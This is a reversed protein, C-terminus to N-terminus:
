QVVIKTIGVENKDKNFIHVFYMGKALDEASLTYHRGTFEITKLKRGTVDDVELLNQGDTNVSINAYNTFPNPYVKMHIAPFNKSDAAFSPLSDAVPFKYFCVVEIDSTTTLWNASDGFQALYSVTMLSGPYKSLKFIIKNKHLYISDINASNANEIEYNDIHKGPNHEILSDANETVVLTTSDTLYANTVMPADIERAPTIGYVDRAILNYIRNGFIEYGGVYDFHCDGSDAWLASTSLIELNTDHKVAEERQAEKVNMTNPITATCGFRTQFIYLHTFGPFDEIFSKRLTDFEQMYTPTSTGNIADTEVGPEVYHGRRQKLMGTYKLRFYLRGYNSYPYTKYNAPREYYSIPTGGCGNNFVAIPIKLSDVMLRAMRLEWQGAHGNELFFGDGEGQFWKLNAMLGATSSDSNGFVRIFESKNINASSGDRMGALANSQGDAVYVDGAVLANITTDNTQIGNTISAVNVQYEHLEAPIPFSNNFLATDNTYVM